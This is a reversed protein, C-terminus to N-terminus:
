GSSQIAGSPRVRVGSVRCSFFLGRGASLSLGLARHSQNFGEVLWAVERLNARHRPVILGSEEYGVFRLAAGQALQPSLRRRIGLSAM